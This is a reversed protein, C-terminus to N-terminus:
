PINEFKKKLRLYQDREYQQNKNKAQIRLEVEKDSELRRGCIAIYTNVDGWDYETEIGIDLDKWTGAQEANLAIKLEAITAAISNHQSLRGFERYVWQREEAM